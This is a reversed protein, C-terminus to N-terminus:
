MIRGAFVLERRVGFRGRQGAESVLKGDVKEAVHVGIGRVVTVVVRGNDVARDVALIPPDARGLFPFKEAM